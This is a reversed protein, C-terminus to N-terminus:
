EESTIAARLTKATVLTNLVLALHDCLKTDGESATNLITVSNIANQIHADITKLTHQKVGEGENSQVQTIRSGADYGKKKADSFKRSIKKATARKKAADRKDAGQWYMTNTKITLLVHKFEPGKNEGFTDNRAVRLADIFENTRIWQAHMAKEKSVGFVKDFGKATNKKGGKWWTDFKATPRADMLPLLEYGNTDIVYGLEAASEAITTDAAGKALEQKKYVGFFEQTKDNVITKSEDSEVKTTNPKTAM